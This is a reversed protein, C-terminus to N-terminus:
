VLVALIYGSGVHNVAQVNAFAHPMMHFDRVM